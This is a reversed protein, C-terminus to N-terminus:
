RTGELPGVAGGRAKRVLEVHNVYASGDAWQFARPLPSACDSEVFPQADVSGNNLAVSLAELMPSTAEWDDLAAQLTPAIDKAEVMRTLDKSVVVLKGDRGHKLSALKM